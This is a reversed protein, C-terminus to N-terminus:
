TRNEAVCSHFVSQESEWPTEQESWTDRKRFLFRARFLPLPLLLLVLLPPRLFSFFFLFVLPPLPLILATARSLKPHRCRRISMAAYKCEEITREAANHADNAGGKIWRWSWRFAFLNLIRETKLWERVSANKKEDKRLKIMSTNLNKCSSKLSIPFSIKSTDIKKIHEKKSRGSTNNHLSLSSLTESLLTSPDIRDSWLPVSNLCIIAIILSHENDNGLIMEFNMRADRWQCSQWALARWQIIRHESMKREERSSEDLTLRSITPSDQPSRSRLHAVFKLGNTFVSKVM